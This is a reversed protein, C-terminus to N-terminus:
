SFYRYKLRKPHIIALWLARMKGAMGCRPTFLDKLMLGLPIRHKPFRESEIDRIGDFYENLKHHDDRSVRPKLAASEAQVADLISRDLARGSGDGVLRDFARSPYIEKTAPKSPTAWSLSSGYIMSLGDELRLENPEVGLVLSPISTKDGVANAVVQDMSTGARIVNPELCVPAGSLLNMRGLHPSTSVFATQNFLGRIFVMDERHPLMPTLGPGLEMTAGSGKAWWHAPEVGNSFFVIGLRLPDNGPLMPHNM